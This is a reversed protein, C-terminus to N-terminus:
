FVGRIVAIILISASVTDLRFSLQLFGIQFNRILFPNGPNRDPKQLGWSKQRMQKPFLYLIQPVSLKKM